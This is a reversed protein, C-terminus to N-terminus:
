SGRGIGAHNLFAESLGVKTEHRLSARTTQYISPFNRVLNSVIAETVWNQVVGIKGNTIISQRVKLRPRIVADVTL